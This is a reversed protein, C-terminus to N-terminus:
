TGSRRSFGAASNISSPLSQVDLPPPPPATFRGPAPRAPTVGRCELVASGEDEHVAPDCAAVFLPAPPSTLPNARPPPRAHSPRGCISHHAAPSGPVYPLPSLPQYAMRAAFEHFERGGEGVWVRAGDRLQSGHTLVAWDQAAEDFVMMKFWGVVRVHPDDGWTRGDNSRWESVEHPLTHRTGARRAKVWGTSRAMHERKTSITWKGSNNVFVCQPGGNADVWVPRGNWEQTHLSYYGDISTPADPVPELAQLGPEPAAKPASPLEQISADQDGQPVITVPTTIHEATAHSLDPSSSRLAVSSRQLYTEVTAVEKPPLEAELMRVVDGGHWEPFLAAFAGGLEAWAEQSTVHRLVAFVADEDDGWNLVASRLQRARQQAAAAPTPDSLGIGSSRLVARCAAVEESVLERQLAAALDGGHFSPYAAHFSRRVQDWDDTDKVSALLRYVANENTGVGKMAKYLGEAVPHAAAASLPTLQKATLLANCKVAGAESLGALLAQVLDGRCHEAHASAFVDKVERWAAEDHVKALVTFVAAEDSGVRNVAHFLGNAIGLASAAGGEAAAGDAVGQAKLLATCEGWEALTMEAKLAAVVDGGHFESHKEAFAHQVARWGDSGEVARLATYVAAEDTGFGKMAAYLASALAEPTAAGAFAVGQKRLIAECKQQEAATLESRLAAVVDGSHFQPYSATFAAKVDQWVARDAVGQLQRYIGEADAGFGKMAEYLGEAIRECRAASDLEAGCRRLIVECKQREAASLEGKLAAVLDGRQFSDHQEAFAQRTHAWDAADTVALLAAYIAREDTGFGAM